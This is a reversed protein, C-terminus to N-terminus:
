KADSEHLAREGLSLMRIRTDDCLELKLYAIHDGRRWYALRKIEPCVGVWRLGATGSGGYEPKGWAEIIEKLVEDFQAELKAWEEEPDGLFHASGLLRNRAAPISPFGAAKAKESSWPIGDLVSQMMLVYSNMIGGSIVHNELDLIPM